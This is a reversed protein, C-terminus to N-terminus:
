FMINKTQTLGKRDGKCSEKILYEQQLLAPNSFLGGTSPYCQIKMLTLITRDERHLQRQRVPLWTQDQTTGNVDLSQVMLM